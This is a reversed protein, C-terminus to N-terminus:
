FDFSYNADFCHRTTLQLSTCLLRRNRAQLLGQVFPPFTNGEPPPTSVNAHSRCHPTIMTDNRWTQYAEDKHSTLTPQLSPSLPPPQTAAAEHILGLGPLGPWNTSYSYIHILSSSNGLFETLLRTFSTSYHLYHHKKLSFLSPLLSRNPIFISLNVDISNDKGFTTALESGHVLALLMAETSSHGHHLKHNSPRGNFYLLSIAVAADDFPILRIYLHLHMQRGIVEHTFTCLEVSPPDHYFSRVRTHSWSQDGPAALWDFPQFSTPLLTLPIPSQIFDPWSM